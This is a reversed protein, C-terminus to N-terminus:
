VAVGLPANKPTGVALGIDDVLKQNEALYAGTYENIEDIPANFARFLLGTKNNNGYAGEAYLLSALVAPDAVQDGNYIRIDKMLVQQLVDDKSTNFKLNTGVEGAGTTTWSSNLTNAYFTGNVYFIPQNSVSRSDYAILVHFLTNPTNPFQASRWKQVTGGSIGIFELRRNTTPFGISYGRATLSAGDTEYCSIIYGDQSMTTYCNFWFSWIRYPVNEVAIAPLYGWEVHNNNTVLDAFNIALPTVSARHKKVTWWFNVIGGTVSPQADWGMGQIFYAADAETQDEKISVLDGVDTYLFYKMHADDRNASMTVRNIDVLPVRNIDLIEAAKERGSTFDAQYPQNISLDHYGYADISPQDEQIDTVPSVTEVIKGFIKLTTLYGGTSGSNAVTVNAGAAGYTVSVNVDETIETGTGNANTWASYVLGSLAFPETAPTFTATYRALGKTIRMEDLCATIYNTGSKGLVMPSTSALITASSTWKQVLVGNKFMRFTTGDRSIAYHTWVAIPIAGFSKGNAIDWSSGNSTIYVLSNTGDSMGFSWPCFGGTGSRSITAKNASANFRYEWWEVTFDINGFEYDVSHTGEAYSDGGDFYLSAVGFKKINTVLELSYDDWPKGGEDVVLEEPGAADFHFLTTPYSSEPPLAAVLRKSNEETFEVYFSKEDNADVFLASDLSFIQSDVTDIRTPNASVSIRNILNEGYVVDMSTMSNDITVNQMANAETLIHDGNEQLIAFGDEQLLNGNALAVPVQKVATSYVRRASSEFRLTEGNTKDKKVYIYSGFESMAFKHFESYAKTKLTADNFITPLTVAGTDIDTALPQIPMGSLITTLGQDVRKNLEIAPNNLPYKAAYNMWDLAVCHVKRQGKTGADIRITDIAGYFRVYTQGDYTFIVRVKTGKGWDTHIVAAGGPTYKGTNNKLSLLLTGTQALVDDPKNSKMGWDASMTGVVDSTIDTWSGLYAYVNVTVSIM